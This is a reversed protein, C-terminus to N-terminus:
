FTNGVRTNQWEVTFVWAWVFWGDGEDSALLEAFQMFPISFEANAKGTRCLYFILTLNMQEKM